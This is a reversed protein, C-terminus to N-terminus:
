GAISSLRRENFQTWRKRLNDEHRNAENGSVDASSRSEGSYGVGQSEVDQGAEQKKKRREKEKVRRKLEINRKIENMFAKFDFLALIHSGDKMSIAIPYILLFDLLLMLVTMMATFGKDIDRLWLIIIPSLIAAIAALTLTFSFLGKPGFVLHFLKVGVWAFFTHTPIPDKSHLNANERIQDLAKDRFRVLRTSRISLRVTYATMVAIIAGIIFAYLPVGGGLEKVQMSFLSAVFSLPIFVFALETLKAVSEAEAISRRSDVIQMEARLSDSTKDILDIANQLRHRTTKAWMESPIDARTHSSFTDRDSNYVFQVFEELCQDLDALSFNLRHLLGRWFTVRRQMLDEDLMGERIRSLSVRLVDVLGLTDDHITLLLAQLPDWLKEKGKSPFSVFYEFEDLTSRPLQLNIVYELMRLATGADGPPGMSSARTRIPRYIVFPEHTEPLTPEATTQVPRTWARVKETGRPFRPQNDKPKKSSDNGMNNATARKRLTVFAEDSLNADAGTTYPQDNPSLRVISHISSSSADTVTHPEVLAPQDQRQEGQSSDISQSMMSSQQVRQGSRVMDPAISLSSLSHNMSESISLERPSPIWNTIQAAKSDTKVQESDLTNESVLPVSPHPASGVRKGSVGVVPLPDLLVIVERTLVQSVTIFFISIEYWNQLRKCIHEM